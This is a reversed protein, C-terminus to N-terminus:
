EEINKEPAVETEKESEVADTAGGTVADFSEKGENAEAGKDEGSDDEPIGKVERYIKMFEKGTITEKEYLFEAIKDLVDRNESLM